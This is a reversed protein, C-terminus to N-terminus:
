VKLVKCDPCSDKIIEWQVPDDEYFESLQLRRVMESKWVAVANGGVASPPAFYVACKIGHDHLWDLVGEIHTNGTIICDRVSPRKIGVDVVGNYDFGIM